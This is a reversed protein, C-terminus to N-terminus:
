TSRTSDTRQIRAHRLDRRRRIQDGDGLERADIENLMQELGALDRNASANDDIMQARALDAGLEHDLRSEHVALFIAEAERDLDLVARAGNGLDLM